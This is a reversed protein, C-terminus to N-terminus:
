CPRPELKPTSGRNKVYEGGEPVPSMALAPDVGGSGGGGKSAEPRGKAPSSKKCLKVGPSGDVSTKQCFM